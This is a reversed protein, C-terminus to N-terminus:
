SLLELRTLTHGAGLTRLHRAVTDLTRFTRPGAAGLLPWRGLRWAISAELRYRLPEYEVVILEIVASKRMLGMLDLQSIGHAPPAAQPTARAGADRRTMTM